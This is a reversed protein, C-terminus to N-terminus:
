KTVTTKNFLFVLETKVVLFDLFIISPFYIHKLISDIFVKSMSVMQYQLNANNNAPIQALDGVNYGGRNNNQFSCNIGNVYKLLLNSFALKV